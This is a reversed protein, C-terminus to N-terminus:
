VVRQGLAEADPLGLEVLVDRHLVGLHGLVLAAAQDVEVGQDPEVPGLGVFPECGCGSPQGRLVQGLQDLVRCPRDPEGCWGHEGVVDFPHQREPGLDVGPRHLDPVAGVVRVSGQCRLLDGAVQRLVRGLGGGVGDVAVPRVRVQRRTWATAASNAVRTSSSHTAAPM